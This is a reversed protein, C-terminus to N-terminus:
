NHKVQATTARHRLAPLCKRLNDITLIDHDLENVWECLDLQTSNDDEKPNTLFYFLLSIDSMWEHHLQPYLMWVSYFVAMLNGLEPHYEIGKELQGLLDNIDRLSTNKPCCLRSLFTCVTDVNLSVTSSKEKAKKTLHMLHHYIYDRLQSEELDLSALRDDIFKWLYEEPKDIGDLNGITTVIRDWNMAVIFICPLGDLYAQKKLLQLTEQGSLRDIEDIFVIVPTQKEDDAFVERYAFLSSIDNLAQQFDDKYRELNVARVKNRESSHQLTTSSNLQATVPGANITVSSSLYHSIARVAKRTLGSSLARPHSVRFLRRLLHEEMAQPDDMNFYVCCYGVKDLQYYIQHLFWTKGTGYGGQVSFSHSTQTISQQYQTSVQRSLIEASHQITDCSPRVLSLRDLYDSAETGYV